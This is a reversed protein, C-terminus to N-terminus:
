KSKSSVEECNIISLDKLIPSFIIDGNYLYYESDFSITRDSVYVVPIEDVLDIKSVNYAVVSETYDGGGNFEILSVSNGSQDLSNKLSLLYNCSGMIGRAAILEDAFVINGQYIQAMGNNTMYSDSDKSLSKVLLKADKDFVITDSLEFDNLKCLQDISIGTQNSVDIINDGSNVSYYIAKSPLVLVSGNSVYNNTLNNLEKINDLEDLNGYLKMLISYLYEGKSEYNFGIDYKNEVFRECSSNSVDSSSTTTTTETTTPVTGTVTVIDTVETVDTVDTSIYSTNTFNSINPVYETETTSLTTINETTTTQVDPVADININGESDVEVSIGLKELLDDDVNITCGTLTTGVTGALLLAKVKKFLEKKDM